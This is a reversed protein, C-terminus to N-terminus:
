AQNGGTRLRIHSLLQYCLRPYEDGAEVKSFGPGRISDQISGWGYIRCIFDNQLAARKGKGESLRYCGIVNVVNCEAGDGFLYKM